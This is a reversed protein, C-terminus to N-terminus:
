KVLILLTLALCACTVHSCRPLSDESDTATSAILQVVNSAVTAVLGGTYSYVWWVRARREAETEDDQVRGGQCLSAHLCRGTWDLHVLRQLPHWAVM